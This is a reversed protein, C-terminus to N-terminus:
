NDKLKVRDKTKKVKNKTKVPLHDKKFDEMNYTSSYKFTNLPNVTDFTNTKVHENKIERENDEFYEKTLLSQMLVIEDDGLNYGIDGLSLFSKPEFIFNKIRNFRILEDALKAFYVKENDLDNILNQKPIMMNVEKTTDDILCYKKEESNDAKYCSTVNIIDNIIEDSFPTFKFYNNTMTRLLKIVRRLKNNHQQSSNIIEEIQNRINKNKHETLMIRITNRFIKYFGTEINIKKIYNIREIDVSSESTILTDIENFNNATISVTIGKYDNDIYDPDPNVPVFQNTETILGVIIDNEKVKIVPKSLIKDSNHKVSLLFDVTKTYSEGVISDIWIYEIDYESVIMPSSPYCPLIGTEGKNEAKVAIVKGDYNFVQAIIKYNQELLEKVLTSLIINKKFTYVNPMSTIGDCKTYAQKISYITERIDKFKDGDLKIKTSVRYQEEEKMECIVEFYTDDNKNKGEKKRILIITDKNKDFFNDSYNNSPCLIDVKDTMDDNPIDLIIMNLGDKFLKDNPKCILDWLYTHDIIVSPNNLFKIFNGYASVIKKFVKIKTPDDSQLKKYIQSQQLKEYEIEDNEDNDLGFINILNANQLTVFTDYDISDIMLQKMESITPSSIVGKGGERNSWIKAICSIFSQSKNSEVGLRMICPHNPKLNTNTDSIYCQKNSTNLFKEISVPLYGFRNNDLPFKDPGKIYNDMNEKDPKKDPKKDTKLKIKKPKSKTTDKPPIANAEIDSNCIKRREKQLKSVTPGGFCCPACIGNQKKLFGPYQSKYQKTDPDLQKDSTFEFIEEGKSVKKAKLPIIKGYKGSKAEQETLSVNEKLSWYRPCIYWYKNNQDSGYQIAEGYSGPHEMDIKEKEETTLIVPQRREHSPCSRSYSNINGEGKVMFLNKDRSKMREAFYDRLKLNELDIDYGESNDAGGVTDNDSEDDSEEGSEEESDDDFLMDDYEVEKELQIAGDKINTKQNILEAQSILDTTTDTEIDPEETEEVSKCNNILEPNQTIRLLSNLYMELTKLYNVHDIGTVDLFINNANDKTIIVKLGPNNKIKFKTSDFDNQKINASNMFDNFLSIADKDKMNFNKIINEIIIDPSLGKNILDIILAETGSMEDYNEVRKYRMEIGKSINFNSAIFVGSICKNLPEINIKKQVPVSIHYDINNIEVYDDNISQFTNMTYGGQSIYEKIKTIINNIPDSITVDLDNIDIFGELKINIDGNSSFECVLNNMKDNYVYKTYVAVSKGKGIEKMMKFIEQRPLSPIKKGNIATYATHLRYMKEQAKGPNYKTMPIDESTNILKFVVDLPLNFSSPPHIIFDITKIGKKEYVLDYESNTSNHIDVMLNVNQQTVIFRESVMNKSAFLLSDKNDKVAKISTINKDYLKPYYIKICSEQSLNKDDITEIVDEMLCMYITNDVLEGFNMLINNNTTTIMNEQTNDLLEGVETIDYPNVFYPYNTDKVVIKQDISKNTVYKEDTLNLNVIDDYDYVDKTQISDILESSNINHLFQEIHLKSLDSSNNQTLNEYVKEPYHRKKLKVFLYMEYFSFTDSNTAYLIKTKINEITDDLHIKMDIFKVNIDNEIIKNLLEDTFIEKFLDDNKDAKFRNELLTSEYETDGIKSGYFIYLTVIENNKLHAVKYIQSM